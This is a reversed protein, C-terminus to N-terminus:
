ISKHYAFLSELSQKLSYTPTFGLEGLRTVDAFHRSVGAPQGSRPVIELRGDLGSIRLLGTLMTQISTERGSAINYTAGPTGKQALLLLASGVDRVDIFDRTTDLPGVELRAPKPESALQAAFRGCVHAESQGAGVVNFIRAAILGQGARAAKVRGIQEAALKTIGYLDAPNCPQSEALPLSVPEGYVSGSSGLVVLAKTNALANMLSATGELNAEFLEHEPATHLASALHFVCDPEFREVVDRLRDTALLSLQQYRYHGDISLDAPVPARQQRGNVLITHTFFGPLSASRGIGLVHAGPEKRLIEATLHRGVLGQSGTVLYKRTM